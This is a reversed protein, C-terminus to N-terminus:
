EGQPLATYYREAWNRRTADNWCFAAQLLSHVNAKDVFDILRRLMAYRQEADADRVEMLRLFRHDSAEKGGKDAEKNALLRPFSTTSLERAHALLGVTFALAPLHTNEVQVGRQRLYNVPGRHFEPLIFVEDPTRARRLRARMGRKDELTTWWDKLHQEYNPLDM